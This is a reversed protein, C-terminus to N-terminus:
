GETHCTHCLKKLNLTGRQKCRKCKPPTATRRRGCSELHARFFEVEMHSLGEKNSRVLIDRMADIVQQKYSDM